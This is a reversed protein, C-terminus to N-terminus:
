INKPNELKVPKMTLNTNYLKEIENALKSSGQRSVINTLLIKKAQIIFNVTKDKIDPSITKNNNITDTLRNGNIELIKDDYIQPLGFIELLENTKYNDINLDFNM